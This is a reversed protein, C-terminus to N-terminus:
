DHTDELSGTKVVRGDQGRFNPRHWGYYRRSTIKVGVAWGISKKTILVQGPEIGRLKITLLEWLGPRLWEAMRVRLIHDIGAMYFRPRSQFWRSTGYPSKESVLHAYQYNIGRLKITLIECDAPRLWEAM